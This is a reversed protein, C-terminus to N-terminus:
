AEDNADLRVHGAGQVEHETNKGAHCRAEVGQRQLGADRNAAAHTGKRGENRGAGEAQEGGEAGRHHGGRM